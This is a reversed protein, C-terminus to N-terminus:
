DDFEMYKSYEKWSISKLAKALYDFPDGDDQYWEIQLFTHGHPHRGEPVWRSRCRVKVLEAPPWKERKSWRKEVDADHESFGVIFLSDSADLKRAIKKRLVEHAGSHSGEILGEYVYSLHLSLLEIQIEDRDKFKRLKSM